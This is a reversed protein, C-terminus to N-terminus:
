VALVESRNKFIHGLANYDVKGNNNLPLSEIKILEQPQMYPTCDSKIKKMANPLDLDETFFAVLKLTEGVADIPVGIVAVEGVELLKRITEEVDHTEIRYGQIKLQRDKRGHYLLGEASMSVIDGTKYWALSRHSQFHHTLFSEQSKIPNNLYGNAIQEGGLLLEGAVGTQVPQLNEDVVICELEGLPYGIPVISLEASGPAAGNVQYRTFAITAETPGYLNEIIANPAAECWCRAISFSLAEGCFLSYRLSPLSGPKLSRAKSMGVALSPVSFWVTINNRNIFKTPLLLDAKQPVYLCAGVAWCVFMDHVSLDFSFDFFQTFRDTSSFDYVSIINQIYTLVNKSNIGIGKPVGTSGSTFLLYEEDPPVKNTNGANIEAHFYLDARDDNTLIVSVERKCQKLVISLKELSLSNTILLEIDAIGIIEAIRLPPFEPNLPVYSAGAGLAGLISSYAEICKPLFIGVRKKECKIDVSNIVRSINRSLRNVDGYSYTRQGVFIAGADPQAVVSRSFLDFLKLLHERM